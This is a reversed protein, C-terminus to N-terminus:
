WWWSSRTLRRSSRRWLAVVADVEVVVVEADAEEV